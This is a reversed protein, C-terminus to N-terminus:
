RRPPPVSAHAVVRFAAKGRPLEFFEPNVCGLEDARNEYCSAIEAKCMPLPRRATKM